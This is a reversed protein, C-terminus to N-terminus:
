NEKISESTPTLAVPKMESEGIAAMMSAALLDNFPHDITIMGLGGALAILATDCAEEPSLGFKTHLKDFSDRLNSALETKGCADMLSSLMMGSCSLVSFRHLWANRTDLDEWGDLLELDERAEDTM